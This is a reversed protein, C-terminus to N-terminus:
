GQPLCSGRLAQDSFIAIKVNSLMADPSSVDSPFIENYYSQMRGSFTSHECGLVAAFNELNEGQGKAMEMMLNHYNAEAFYQAERDKLVIDHKGCGSTGFTMAITNLFTANTLARAFSSLLSQKPAIQWGLGCGSSKDEAHALPTFLLVALLVLTKQM